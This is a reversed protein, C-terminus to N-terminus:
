RARKKRLCLAVHDRTRDRYRDLKLARIDDSRDRKPIKTMEGVLALRSGYVEDYM